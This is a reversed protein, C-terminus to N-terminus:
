LKGARLVGWFGWCGEQLKGLLLGGPKGLAGPLLHVTSPAKRGNRFLLFFTHRPLRAEGVPLRTERLNHQIISSLCSYALFAFNWM